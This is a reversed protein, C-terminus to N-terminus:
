TEGSKVHKEVIRAVEDLHKRVTTCRMPWQLVSAVRELYKTDSALTRIDRGPPKIYEDLRPVGYAERLKKFLERLRPALTEEVYVQLEDVDIEKRRILSDSLFFDFLLAEQLVAPLCDRPTSAIANVRPEGIAADLMCMSAVVELSEVLMKKADWVVKLMAVDGCKAVCEVIIEAACEAALAHAYLTEDLEGRERRYLELNM